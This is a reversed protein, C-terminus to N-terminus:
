VLATQERSWDQVVNFKLNHLVEVDLDGLDDLFDIVDMALSQPM